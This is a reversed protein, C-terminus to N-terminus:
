FPFDAFVNCSIFNHLNIKKKKFISFLLKIEWAHKAMNWFAPGIVRFTIFMLITKSLETARTLNLTVLVSLNAPSAVCHHPWRLHLTFVGRLELLFVCPQRESTILYTGCMQPPFTCQLANYLTVKPQIQLVNAHTEQRSTRAM